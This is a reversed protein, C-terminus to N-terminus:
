KFYMERTVVLNGFYNKESVLKEQRASMQSITMFTIAVEHENCCPAEQESPYKQRIGTANAYPEIMM